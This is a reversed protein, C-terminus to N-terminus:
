PVNTYMPMNANKVDKYMQKDQASLQYAADLDEVDSADSDQDSGPPIDDVTNYDDLVDDAEHDSTSSAQLLKDLEQGVLVQHM